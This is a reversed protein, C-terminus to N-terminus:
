RSHLAAVGTRPRPAPQGAGGVPLAGAGVESFLPVTFSGLRVDYGPRRLAGTVFSASARGGSSGAARTGGHEDAIRQLTALDGEISAVRVGAQLRDPLSGQGATRPSASACAGLLVAALVGTATRAMPGRMGARM